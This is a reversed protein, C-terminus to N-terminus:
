APPLFAGYLVAQVCGYAIFFGILAPWRREHPRQVLKRAIHWYVHPFASVMRVIIQAHASSFTLLTLLIQQIGGVSLDASLLLIAYTPAAMLFLPLNSLTFYRGFGVNWYGDQVFSYVLAPTQRCWPRPWEIGDIQVDALSAGAHSGQTGAYAARVAADALTKGVRMGGSPQAAYCFVYWAYAQTLAWPAVVICALVASKILRPAEPRKPLFYLVNLIGTARTLGSIGFLLAAAYNHKHLLSLATFTLACYVSETYGVCLFIGAPNVIHLLSSILALRESSTAYFSVRYFSVIAIFHGLLGIVMPDVFRVLAPLLPGFAFQQEYTYGGDRAIQNFFVTDWHQLVGPLLRSSTDYTGLHSGLFALGVLVTKYVAFYIALETIPIERQRIASKNRSLGPRPKPRLLKKVAAIPSRSRPSGSANSSGHLHSGHSGYSTHSPTLSSPEGPSSYAAGSRNVIGPTGPRYPSLSSTSLAPSAEEQTTSNQVQLKSLPTSVPSTETSLRGAPTVQDRSSSRDTQTAADRSPSGTDGRPISERPRKPTQLRDM